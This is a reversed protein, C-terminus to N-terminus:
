LLMHWDSPADRLHTIHGEWGLYAIKGNKGLFPAEAAKVDVSGPHTKRPVEPLRRAMSVFKVVALV